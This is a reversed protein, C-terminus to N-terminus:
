FLVTTILNGFYRLDLKIKVFLIPTIKKHM